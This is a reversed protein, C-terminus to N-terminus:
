ADFSSGCGCTGKANPNTIVFREGELDNKYHITSGELYNLSMPDVIVTVLGIYGGTGSPVKRQVQTDEEKHQEEFAFNYQFGSCGGGTIYIRLCLSPNNDELMLEHIKSAAADTIFLVPNEETTEISDASNISLPQVAAPASM